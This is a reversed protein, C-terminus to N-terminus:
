RKIQTKNNIYGEIKKYVFEANTIQTETDTRSAIFMDDYDSANRITFAAGIMKSLEVPLLGEKIYRRRFEAIIGSHKSTDFNDFVLLARITHFMAYYARNNAARYEGNAFLLHAARLDEKARELRYGSYDIQTQTYESM